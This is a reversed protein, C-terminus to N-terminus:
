RNAFRSNIFLSEGGGGGGGGEEKKGLEGPPTIKQLLRGSGKNPKQM